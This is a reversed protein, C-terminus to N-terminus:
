PSEQHHYVMPIGFAQGYPERIDPNDNVYRLLLRRGPHSSASNTGKVRFGLFIAFRVAAEDSGLCTTQLAIKNSMLEDLAERAEQVLLKPHRTAANTMALWVFALPSAPSGIAGALGALDGDITWARTWYSRGFSDRLTRHVDSGPSVWAGIQEVRLRRSMIGCHFLKPEIREVRVTM